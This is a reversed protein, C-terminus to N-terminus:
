EVWLCADKTEMEGLHYNLTKNAPFDPNVCFILSFNSRSELTVAFMVLGLRGSDSPFCQEGFYFGSVQQKLHECEEDGGSLLLGVSKPPASQPFTM